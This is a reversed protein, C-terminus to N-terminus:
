CVKIDPNGVYCIDGRQGSQGVQNDQTAIIAFNCGTYCREYCEGLCCGNIECTTRVYRDSIEISQFCGETRPNNNSWLFLTSQGVFIKIQAIVEIM